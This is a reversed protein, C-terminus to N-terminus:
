IKPYTIGNETITIGKDVRAKLTKWDFGFDM